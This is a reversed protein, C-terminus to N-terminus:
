APGFTKRLRAFEDGERYFRNSGMGFTGGGLAIFSASM